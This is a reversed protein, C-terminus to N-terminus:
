GLQAQVQKDSGSLSQHSSQKEKLLFLFSSSASVGLKLTMKPFHLLLGVQPGWTLLRSWTQITQSFNWRCGFEEFIRVQKTALIWGHVHGRVCGPVNVHAPADSPNGKSQQQSNSSDALLEESVWEHLCVSAYIPHFLAQSNRNESSITILLMELIVCVYELSFSPLADFLKGNTGLHTGLVKVM